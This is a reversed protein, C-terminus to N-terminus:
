RRSAAGLTAVLRAHLAASARGLRRSAIWTAGVLGSEASLLELGPAVRAAFRDRVPGPTALVSGGLVVPEGPRPDLTALTAALLDAAADAIAGAVPDDEAHRSVLPAFRALWTPPHTYCAQVLDLYGGAGAEALVAATLPTPPRGEDLVELTARVAARGLWFGSGRDGLLYGWGDRRAHLADGVVRGAVAGTGAIIMCGEDAPTASSFGVALDSVLVAPADLGAPLAAPLFTPDAAAVSGGALGVVAGRVTGDLGALAREAAGRIEAASGAVGVLNPNGPGGSAVALVHGDLDVVAVRTSTGGVDAGLVLDAM